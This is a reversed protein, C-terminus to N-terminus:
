GIAAGAADARVSLHDGTGPDSLRLHPALWPDRAVAPAIVLAGIIRRLRMATSRPVEGLQGRRATLAIARSLPPVPLPAMTVRDRFRQARLVGLPTAITWGAGEAVLAMIAHYSDMEFRHDLPLDHRALHAAIARGMHHRQTYQIFRLGAIAAADPIRGAPMVAVFPEEMLPHMEMWSEAGGMDAAVIMDLSRAGLQASLAHSAGTELLFRCSGLEGAMESLFRPTVDADFDEIMGLSLRSLHSLDRTALEARALAAEGLINLARRLFTTGAPTLRFPRAARDVLQAALAAELNALQQSVASPSAALRRAAGSISGEDAIAAFVEVAWLTIRGAPEAM